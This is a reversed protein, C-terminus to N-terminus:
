AQWWVVVATGVCMAAVVAVAFAVATWVPDGDDPEAGDDWWSRSTM